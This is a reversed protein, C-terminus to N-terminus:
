GLPMHSGEADRSDESSFFRAQLSMSSFAKASIAGRTRGIEKVLRDM